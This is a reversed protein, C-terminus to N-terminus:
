NNNGNVLYYKNVIMKNEENNISSYCNIYIEENRPINIYSYSNKSVKDKLIMKDGEKM